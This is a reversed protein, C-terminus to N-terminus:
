LFPHCRHIGDRLHVITFIGNASHIQKQAVQAAFVVIKPLLIIIGNNGAYCAPFSQNIGDGVIFRYNSNQNQFIGGIFLFYTRQSYCFIVATLANCCHKQFNSKPLQLTCFREDGHRRVM